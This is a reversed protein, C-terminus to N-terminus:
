GQFDNIQTWGPNQTDNIQNWSGGGANNINNWTVSGNDNIKIWGRQVLLDLLYVNETIAQLFVAQTTSSDAMSIAETIAYVIIVSASQAAASGFNEAISEIFGATITRIDAITIAESVSSVYQAVITELEAMTVAESLAIGLNIQQGNALTSNESLSELFTSLQTSSDNQTLVEVIGEFFNDQESQVDLIQSIAEFISSAYQAQFVQSDALTFNEILSLIYANGGLPLSAFPAQAFTTLGFM